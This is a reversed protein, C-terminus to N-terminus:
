LIKPGIVRSHLPNPFPILNLSHIVSCPVPSLNLAAITTSGGWQAGKPYELIVHYDDEEMTAGEAFVMKNDLLSSLRPGVAGGMLVSIDKDSKSLVSVGKDKITLGMLAANGGVFFRGGEVSRSAGVIQKFLASNSVFREGAGGKQFFFKFTEELEMLSEIKDHDRAEVSEGDMALMSFVELAPVILDVCANLGVAFRRPADNPVAGPFSAFSSFKSARDMADEDIRQQWSWAALMAALTFTVLVGSLYLGKM